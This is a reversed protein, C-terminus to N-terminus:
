IDRPTGMIKPVGTLSKDGMILMFLEEGIIGEGIDEHRDLRSGMERKSDYLHIVRLNKRGIIEGIRRFLDLYNQETRLGYGAVFVHCTDLCFALRSNEKGREIILAIQEPSKGLTAATTELAINVRAGGATDTHIRDLTDIIREIGWIEGYV